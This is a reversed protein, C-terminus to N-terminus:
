QNIKQDILVLIVVDAIEYYKRRIRTPYEATEKRNREVEDNMAM